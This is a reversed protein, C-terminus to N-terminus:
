AGTVATSLDAGTSSNVTFTATVTGAPTTIAAGDAVTVTNASGEALGTGTVTDITVDSDFTLTTGNTDDASESGIVEYKITATGADYNIYWNDPTGADKEAGLVEAVTVTMGRQATATGKTQIQVLGTTLVADHETVTYGTGKATYNTAGDSVSKFHSGDYTSMTISDGKKYLQATGNDITVKVMDGTVTQSTLGVTYPKSMIAGGSIAVPTTVNDTRYYTGDTSAVTLQTGVKVAVGTGDNANVVVTGDHSLTTNAGTKVTTAAYVYTPASITTSGTAGSATNAGTKTTGTVANKTTTEIVDAAGTTKTTYYTISNVTGSVYGTSGAAIENENTGATKQWKITVGSGATVPYSAVAVGFTATGGYPADATCATSSTFNVNAYGESVLMKSIAARQKEIGEGNPNYLGITGDEFLVATMDGLDEEDPTTNEFSYQTLFGYVVEGDDNVVLTVKDGKSVTPITNAKENKRAEFLLTDDTLTYSMYSSGGLALRITSPTTAFVTGSVSNGGVRSQDLTYVGDDLSYNYLGVPMTHDYRGGVFDPRIVQNGHADYAADVMYTEIKGDIIAFVEFSEGNQAVKTDYVYAWNDKFDASPNTNNFFLVLAEGRASARVSVQVTANDIGPATRGQYRATSGDTKSYLFITRDSVTYNSSGVDIVSKGSEYDVTTNRNTSLTQSATRNLDTRNVLKVAGSETLSYSYINFQDDAKFGTESANAPVRNAPTGGTCNTVKKGDITSVDYTAVTNDALLLRARATQGLNGSTSATQNEFGLLVAYTLLAEDTESVAFIYGNVDKHYVANTNLVGSTTVYDGVWSQDNSVIGSLGSWKITEGDLKVNKKSTSYSDLKAEVTEPKQVYLKGGFECFLVQDNLAVDDFGVVDEADYEGENFLGQVRLAADDGTAYKNVNGYGYKEALAYDVKKDGDNDILTVTVGTCDAALDFQAETMSSAKNDKDATTAKDAVAKAPDDGYVVGGYYGGFNVYYETDATLELKNDDAVDDVKTGNTSVVVKNQSTPIPTGIVVATSEDYGVTNKYKIYVVVNQGLLEKGTSVKYTGSGSTTKVGDIAIVDLTTEGEDDASAYSNNLAAVENSVVVAEVKSAGFKEQLVNGLGETTVQPKTTVVSGDTSVVYEYKVMQCELANYVMQAANDRTLDVSTSTATIGEYLDEQNAKVDTNIQWNVGVYGEIGANYGIAVLLMKAAEAMTVTDNPAFTGDGRGAVIGLNTCYEIYAKAWHSVTDTYSDAVVSGLQPDRGGNLVVCIMKAMEARTVIGTPDYSGDEKGNIVNLSALVTVAEKNVIDAGDSFDDVSVAGAGIVMMSLVMVSALALSLARKLNRM